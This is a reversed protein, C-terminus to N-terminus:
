CRKTLPVKVVKRRDGSLVFHFFAVPDEGAPVARYSLTVFAGEGLGRFGVAGCLTSRKGVQLVPHIWLAIPVRPGGVRIIPAEAPTRGFSFPKEGLPKSLWMRHKSEHRLSFRVRGGQYYYLTAGRHLVESGDTGNEKGRVDGIQFRSYKRRGRFFSKVAQPRIQEDEGTLDGDGNRDWYLVDQGGKKASRDIVAWIRTEGKEGFVFLVYGPSGAYKPERAIKREITGLDIDSASAEAMLALFGGMLIIVAM